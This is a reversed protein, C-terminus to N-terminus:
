RTLVPKAKEGTEVLMYDVGHHAYRREVPAGRSIMEHSRGADTKGLIALGSKEYRGPTRAASTIRRRKQAIRKQHKPRDDTERWVLKRKKRGAKPLDEGGAVSRRMPWYSRIPQHSNM